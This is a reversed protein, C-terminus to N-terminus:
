FPKEDSTLDIWDCEAKSLKIELTSLTSMLEEHNRAGIIPMVDLNGSMTYAMCVQPVTLGKAKALEAAREMRTFNDPYCYGVKLGGPISDPDKEFQERTFRGTCFGGSLASYSACSIGEGVLYQIADKYKPGSLSGSGMMFPDGVMEALSYHEEVIGFGQLGHAAAYDNAEKIRDAQWNAAGFVKVLGQKKFKNLTEIIEAVTTGPDDRHLYFVDIYDTHWRTLSDHLESEMDYSHVTTRMLFPKMDFYRPHACKTTLVFDERKIGRDRWWKGLAIETSGIRPYGYSHAADLANVGQEWMDDLIRFNEEPGNPDTIFATGMIFRSCKKDLGKIKTYDM